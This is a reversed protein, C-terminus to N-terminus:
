ESGAMSMPQMGEKDGGAATAPEIVVGEEPSTQHAGPLTGHTKIAEHTEGDIMPIDPAPDTDGYQINKIHSLSDEENDDFEAIEEQIKSIFTIADAPQDGGEQYMLRIVEEPVDKFEPQVGILMGNLEELLIDLFIRMAGVSPGATNWLAHLFTAPNAYRKVYKADFEGSSVELADNDYESLELDLDGSRVSQDDEGFDSNDSEEDESDLLLLRTASKLRPRTLRSKRRAM